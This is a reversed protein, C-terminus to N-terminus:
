RIKKCDFSVGLSCYSKLDIKFLIFHFPGKGPNIVKDVPAPVLSVNVIDTKNYKQKNKRKLNWLINIWMVKLFPERQGRVNPNAHQATSIICMAAGLYSM